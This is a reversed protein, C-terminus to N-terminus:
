LVSETFRITVSMATEVSLLLRPRPKLPQWEHVSQAVARALHVPSTVAYRFAATVSCSGIIKPNATNKILESMNGTKNVKQTSFLLSLSKSILRGLSVHNCKRWPLRRYLTVNATSGPKEEEGARHDTLRRNTTSKLTLAGNLLCISLSTRPSYRSFGEWSDPESISATISLSHLASPPSKWVTM